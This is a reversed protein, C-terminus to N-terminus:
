DRAEVRAAAAEVAAKEQPDTIQLLSSATQEEGASDDTEESSEKAEGEPDQNVCGGMTLCLLALAAVISLVYLIKRTKMM